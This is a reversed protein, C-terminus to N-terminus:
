QLSCTLPTVGFTVCRASQQPAANAKLEQRLREIAQPLDHEFDTAFYKRVAANLANDADAESQSASGRLSEFTEFAQLVLLPERLIGQAVMSISLHEVQNNNEPPGIFKTAFSGAPFM